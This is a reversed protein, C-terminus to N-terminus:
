GAIGYDIVVKSPGLAEVARYADSNVIFAEFDALEDPTKCWHNGSKIVNLATSPLFHFKFSLQSIANDEDEDETDIFQRTIDVQFTLGEGWDYAGWQFLLMDGRQDLECREARIGRYFDLMLPIGQAPTLANATTGAQRIRKELETKAGEPRM